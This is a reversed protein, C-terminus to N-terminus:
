GGPTFVRNQQYAEFQCRQREAGDSLSYRIDSYPRLVKMVLPKFTVPDSTFFIWASESAQSSTITYRTILSFTPHSPVVEPTSVRSINNPTLASESILDVACM